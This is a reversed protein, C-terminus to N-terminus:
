ALSDSDLDTKPIQIYKEIEAEFINQDNLTSESPVNKSLFLAISLDCDNLCYAKYRPDLFSALKILQKTKFNEFYRKSLKEFITDTIFLEVHNLARSLEISLTEDTDGDEETDYNIQSFFTSSEELLINKDFHIDETNDFLQVSDTELNASQISNHIINETKNLNLKLQEYVPWLGSITVKTESALAEGLQKLPDMIHLIREILKLQNFTPLMQQHKTCILIKKLAENHFYHGSVLTLRLCPPVLPPLDLNTQENLLACKMKSSYHFVSRVKVTNLVHEFCPVHNFSMLEVAKLINSGCDTTIGAIKSEDIDWDHLIQKISNKINFSNHNINLSTCALCFSESEWEENIIHATLGIFPHGNGSTWCDTTLALYSLGKLKEKICNKVDEYLQPIKHDSYYKRSPPEFSPCLVSLLHKFGKKEVSNYLQMDACMWVVIAHKYKEITKKDLPHYVKLKSQKFIGKSISAQSGQSDSALNSQLNSLVPDDINYEQAEESKTITSNGNIKLYESYLNPHKYRLHSKLNSTNGGKSNKKRRM